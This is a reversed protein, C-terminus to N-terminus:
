GSVGGQGGIYFWHGRVQEPRDLAVRTMIQGYVGGKSRKVQSSKIEKKRQQFPGKRKPRGQRRGNINRYNNFTTANKQRHNVAATTTNTAGEVAAAYGNARHRPSETSLGSTLVAAPM